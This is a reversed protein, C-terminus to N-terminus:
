FLEILDARLIRIRILSQIKYRMFYLGQLLMFYEFLDKLKTM